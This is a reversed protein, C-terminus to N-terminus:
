RKRLTWVLGDIRADIYKILNDSKSSLRMDKAFDIEKQVDLQNRMMRIQYNAHVASVISTGIM